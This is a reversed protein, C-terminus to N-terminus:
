LHNARRGPVRNRASSRDSSQVKRSKSVSNGFLELMRTTIAAREPALSHLHSPDLRTLIVDRLPEFPAQEGSSLTDFIQLAEREGALHFLRAWILMAFMHVMPLHLHLPNKACWAALSVAASRLCTENDSCLRLFTNLVFGNTPALSVAKLALPHWLSDDMDRKHYLRALGMYSSGWDPEVEIAKKYAHEAAELNGIFDQNLNGLNSWVDALDPKLKICENFAAEAEKYRTTKEQLFTGYDGWVWSAKPNIALAKKYATEAENDRNLYRNCIWGLNSWADVHNPDIKTVAQYEKAAEEANHHYIELVRALKYHAHSDDPKNALAMRCAVEMLRLDVVTDSDKGKALEDILCKTASESEARRVANAVLDMSENWGESGAKASLKAISAISRAFDNDECLLRVMVVFWDLRARAARGHRMLYHINSFRDALLYCKKKPHGVAEVIHGTKVMGRLQASVQNAPLRTQRALGAVEVPNWALAVADFIRQQQPSLSDVIAKFYPTFEDLLMELELRIDTQLGERLLRYFTKILRPNGGTLIRMAKLRGSRGEIAAKAAEDGRAEALAKLCEVMEDYSLPKLEFERFFEFFPKDLETVAEFWRTATGILTIQDSEMLFARLRHMAELNSLGSLLDNLNDILLIARKGSAAVLELFKSRARNELDESPHDLLSEAHRTTAQTAFEWQRICELWFDALDGVRRSEEDFVVPQFSKRLKRDKETVTHAIAWLLTTKGIGRPGIFLLHQPPHGPQNNRLIDLLRALLPKRATFEALLASPSLMAPNYLAYPRINM